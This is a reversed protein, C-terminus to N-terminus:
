ESRLKEAIAREQELPTIFGDGDADDTRFIKSMTAASTKGGDGRNRALLEAFSYRGDGNGDRHRVMNQGFQLLEEQTLADDGNADQRRLISVVDDRAGEWNTLFHRFEVGSLLGDGNSDWRQFKQAIVRVFLPDHTEPEISEATAPAEPFPVPETPEDPTWYQGLLWAAPLILLGVAALALVAALIAKRQRPRLSQNQHATVVPPPRPSGGPDAELLARASETLKALHRELPPATADLWHQSSIFFELGKTPQVAEVRLPIIPLGKAVAREVERLVQQSLNSNNTLVLVLLRSSEIGEIIAAGWDAGPHINRPAIWCRLGAKELARCTAEAIASDKSSHSVFIDM